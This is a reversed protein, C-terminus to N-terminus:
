RRWSWTPGGPKKEVGSMATSCGSIAERSIDPVITVPYTLFTQVLRATSSVIQWWGCLSLRFTKAQAESASTGYALVGPLEPVDAIWRGDDERKIEVRLKV